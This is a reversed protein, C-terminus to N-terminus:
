LEPSTARAAIVAGCAAVSGDRAAMAGEVMVKPSVNGVIPNPGHILCNFTDGQRAILAGNNAYHRSCSSIISGPHSAPDGLTAVPTPM